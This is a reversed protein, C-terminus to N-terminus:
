LLQALCFLIIISAVVIALYQRLFGTQVRRVESGLRYAFHGISNVAGDVVRRDFLDETFAFTRVAGAAGDLIADIIKKDVWAVVQALRLTISVIVKEYLWDIFWRNWLLRYLIPFLRALLSADLWRLGYFITATLVGLTGACFALWSAPSHIEHAHSDAEPPLTWEPWLPSKMVTHPRSDAQLLLGPISIGTLPVSWGAIVSLIALAVMPALMVAPSEHAHELHHPDRSPGVFTLFWLRFIYLGTLFAGLVAVSLFVKALLGGHSALLYAQAFIADKSYFGSLGGWPPIGAGIIALCGVLMTVATWPMKRLLGGLQTMDGSHTAHIVSGACLFLLAKFFAHTILHFLGAVWGGIGLGFMMYGLQSVTSFALVRKIDKAVLAMTGALFLSVTGVAAIILLVEPPLAPYFRGVLYVGAAVMTAAHILASVPTPGEMADPLWVHLPFQASKGVCGCFIGLGGLLLLFYTLSRPDQPGGPLMLHTGQAELGASAEEAAFQKLQAAVTFLGPRQSDDTFTVTGTAAWFAAIGVLMGFDGVRNVVFAKTAARVAAPRELYFGILLYSCIGVLEWFVFVMFLNNALVLGLMSFSFLSLYGFYRHFRGPRVVPPIGDTRTIEHDVVTGQLEEAMYGWSYIHICTAIVTVMVMMLITLADIHYGIPLKLQGFEAFVWWTGALTPVSFHATNESLGQEHSVHFSAFSAENPSNAHKAFKTLDREPAHSHSTESQSALRSAALTYEPNLEQSSVCAFADSTLDSAHEKSSSLPFFYLWLGAAIASCTLSLIIAGTAVHASGRGGFGLKRGFFSIILFSALPLLWATTLLYPIWGM